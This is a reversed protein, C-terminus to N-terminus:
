SFKINTILVETDHLYIKYAQWNDHFLLAHFVRWVRTDPSTASPTPHPPTDGPSQHGFNQSLKPTDDELTLIDVIFNV